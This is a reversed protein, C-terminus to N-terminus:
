GDLGDPVEGVADALTLAISALVSRRDIGRKVLDVAIEGAAIGCAFAEVERETMHLAKATQARNEHVAVALAAATIGEM